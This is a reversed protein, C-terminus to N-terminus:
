TLMAARCEQLLYSNIGDPLLRRKVAGDLNPRRAIRSLRIQCDMIAGFLDVAAQPRRDTM